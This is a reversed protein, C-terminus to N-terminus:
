ECGVHVNYLIRCLVQDLLLGISLLKLLGNEGVVSIAPMAM